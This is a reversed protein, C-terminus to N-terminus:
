SKCVSNLGETDMVLMCTNENLPVPNSWLWIGKTCPM